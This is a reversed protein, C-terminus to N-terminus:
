TNSARQFVKHKLEKEKRLNGSYISIKAVKRAKSRIAKKEPMSIANTEDLLNLISNNFSFPLRGALITESNVAAGEFNILVINTPSLIESTSNPLM